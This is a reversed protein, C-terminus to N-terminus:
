AIARSRSSAPNKAELKEEGVLPAAAKAGGKPCEASFIPLGFNKSGRLSPEYGQTGEWHGTYRNWIANMWGWFRWFGRESRYAKLERNM